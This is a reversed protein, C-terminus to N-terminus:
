NTIRSQELLVKTPNFGAIIRRTQSVSNRELLVKTPNFCLGSLSRPIPLALELLVKTPNFCCPPWRGPSIRMTGSPGKYPQLQRYERSRRWVRLTGSPGKYPQLSSWVATRAAWSYQELLVKTPNFCIVISRIGITRATGSPGKYPQLVSESYKWHSTNPTGSPGKYPQLAVVGAADCDDAHELLVKTPNFCSRARGSVTVSTPELLVKTPNFCPSLGATTSRAVTGSPGKYPQLLLISAMRSRSPFTGSPGKYPQLLSELKRHCTPCLPELLVKTPNFCMKVSIDFSLSGTGSPGKYPQLLAFASVCGLSMTTGSPGKYPQLPVESGTWTQGPQELLVKTPNFCEACAPEGNVLEHELLVKTPNFCKEGYPRYIDSMTGSPGKYPQLSILPGGGGPGDQNWFSRQLTSAETLERVLLEDLRNWFSRRLTSAGDLDRAEREDGLTLPILTPDSSTAISSHDLM